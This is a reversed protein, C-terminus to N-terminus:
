LRYHEIEITVFLLRDIEKKFCDSSECAEGDNEESREKKKTRLRLTDMIIGGSMKPYAPINVPTENRTGCIQFDHRVLLTSSIEQPISASM